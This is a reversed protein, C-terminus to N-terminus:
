NNFMSEIDSSTAATPFTEGKLGYVINFLKKLADDVTSTTISGATYVFNVQGANTPAFPVGNKLANAIERIVGDLTTSGFASNSIPILPLIKQAFYTLLGESSITKNQLDHLVPIRTKSDMERSQMVPFSSDKKSAEALRKAISHIDQKTIM